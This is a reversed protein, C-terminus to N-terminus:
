DINQHLWVGLAVQALPNLGPVQLALMEVPALQGVQLQAVAAAAREVRAVGSADSTVRFVAADDDPALAAGPRMLWDGDKSRQFTAVQQDDDGFILWRSQENEIRFHGPMTVTTREGVPAQAARTAWREAGSLRTLEVTAARAAPNQADELPYWRVQGLAVLNEDYVKVRQHRKRLKRTPTGDPSVLMVRRGSANLMRQYRAAERMHQRHSDDRCAGALLALGLLLLM